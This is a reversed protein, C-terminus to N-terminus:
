TTLLNTNINGPCCALGERFIQGCLIRIEELSNPAIEGKLFTKGWVRTLYVGTNSNFYLQLAPYPQGDLTIEFKSRQFIKWDGIELMVINMRSILDSIDVCKLNLIPRSPESPEM